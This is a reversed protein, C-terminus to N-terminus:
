DVINSTLIATAESLFLSIIISFSLSPAKQSPRLTCTHKSQYNMSSFVRDIYIHTINWYILYRLINIVNFIVKHKLGRLIEWHFIRIFYAKHNKELSIISTATVQDSPQQLILHSPKYTSLVWIGGGGCVTKPYPISPPFSEPLVYLYNSTPSLLYLKNFIVLTISTLFTLGKSQVLSSQYCRVQSYKFWKWYSNIISSQCMLM